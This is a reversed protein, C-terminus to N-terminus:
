IAKIWFFFFFFFFFNAECVFSIKSEDQKQLVKSPEALSFNQAQSLAGPEGLSRAVDFVREDSDFGRYFVIALIGFRDLSRPRRDRDTRLSLLAAAHLELDSYRRHVPNLNGQHLRRREPPDSASVVRLVLDIEDLGLLRDRIKKVM